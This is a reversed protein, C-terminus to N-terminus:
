TISTSQMPAHHIEEARPKQKDECLVHNTLIFEFVSQKSVVAETRADGRQQSKQKVSRAARSDELEAGM